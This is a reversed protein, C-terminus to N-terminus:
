GRIPGQGTVAVRSTQLIHVGVSFDAQHPWLKSGAAPSWFPARSPTVLPGATDPVADAASRMDDLQQARGQAALPMLGLIGLINSVKSPEDAGFPTDLRRKSAMQTAM